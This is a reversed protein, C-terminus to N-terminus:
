SDASRQLEHRVILARAVERYAAAGRSARDYHHISRGFSPSESLRVNRPIVTEFVEAGFHRRAEDSVQHALNNRADFMTLLVGEVSLSPNLRRRILQVTTLLQSIGELAYYECQLPILVSHAATLANITLLGLSPPCDIIVIPPLSPARALAEKLRFERAIADVLEVEAGFLDPHAPLITLNEVEPVPLALRHIEDMGLLAHYAGRRPVKTDIGLGSTANAQPDLDVLLTRVGEIALGAALNVATTTKGVGGKQNAICVIRTAMPRTLLVSLAYAGDAREFTERSVNSRPELQRILGRSASGRSCFAPVPTRSHRSRALAPLLALAVAAM